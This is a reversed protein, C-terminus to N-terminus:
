GKGHLGALLNLEKLCGLAVPLNGEEQAKVALAELRIMQQALFEPREIELAQKSRQRIESLLDAIENLNLRWLERAKAELRHKPWGQDTWLQLAAIQDSRKIKM